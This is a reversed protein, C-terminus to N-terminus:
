TDQFMKKRSSLLAQIPISVRAKAIKFRRIKKKLFYVVVFRPNITMSNSQQQPPAGGGMM